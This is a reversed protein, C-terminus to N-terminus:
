AQLRPCLPTRGVACCSPMPRAALQATARRAPRAHTNVPQLAAVAAHLLAPAPGLGRCGGATLLLHPYPQKVVNDVPSYSLMNEYDAQAALSSLLM